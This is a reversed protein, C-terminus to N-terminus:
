ARLHKGVTKANIGFLGGLKKATAGAHYADVLEDVEEPRLQRFRRPPTGAEKDRLSQNALINKSLKIVPEIHALYTGPNSYHQLLVM